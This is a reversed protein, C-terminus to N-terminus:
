QPLRQRWSEAEATKGQAECLRIARDIVERRNRAPSRADKLVWEAGTLILPEAEATKNQRLLADGLTSMTVGRIGSGEPLIKERIALAERLNSEAKANQGASLNCYGLISRTVGVEAHVAGYIRTRRNLLDLLIQEAEDFQKLDILIYALNTRAILTQPHDEGLLKIRGAAVDRRLAVAGQLDPKVQLVDSLFGKPTLTDFHDPGFVKMAKDCAERLIKESQVLDGGQQLSKGLDSMRSITRPHDPGYRIKFDELTAAHNKAADAYRGQMRYLEGIQERVVAVRQHHEGYRSIRSKLVNDFLKEAEEVKDAAALIQAFQLETTITDAHDEGLNKKQWEWAQRALTEGEELKGESSRAHALSALTEAILPDNLNAAQRIALIENLEKAADEFKGDVVLISARTHRADLTEPHNEGLAKSLQAVSKASQSVAQERLGLGKYARAIARHMSGGLEPDDKLETEIEQATTDLMDAVRVDRGKKDPDASALMTELFGVAAVSKATQRKAIDRDREAEKRRLEAAAEANTARIAQVTTTLIGGALVGFAIIISAVIGKNRQVFKHAHYVRSPPHALIPEDALFRRIDAAFEEASQYRRARDKELAKLTITELDGKLHRAIASPRIPPSESILRTAEHLAKKELSFPLRGTLCEYLVVGLSYVDSRADIENPDAAIQEPSMYALTGVLQGVQTQFTAAARDASDSPTTVRAVGFDLIKPNGSHDILINAPKLDRHVVGRIHAHQVADAIRAFLALRARTSLEKQKIFDTLTVGKILEMAFFPTGPAAGSIIQNRLIEGTNNQFFGADFIQAIGPHSLRGLTTSELAFRALATRSSAGAKLIKVAVERNPNDQQAIYVVGFGGEGIQRLLRYPGIRQPLNSLAPETPTSVSDLTIDSPSSFPRGPPTQGGSSPDFTPPNPDPM